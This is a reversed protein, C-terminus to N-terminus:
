SKITAAGFQVVGGMTSKRTRICGAYNSDVCVHLVTVCEQRRFIQVVHRRSKFYRALRKLLRMHRRTPNKIEKGVRQM